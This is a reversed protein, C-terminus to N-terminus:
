VWKLWAPSIYILLILPPVASQPLHSQLQLSKQGTKHDELLLLFISLQLFDDFLQIFLLLSAIRQEVRHDGFGHCVAEPLPDSCQLCALYSVAAHICFGGFILADPASFHAREAISISMKAYCGCCGAATWTGQTRHFHEVHSDSTLCAFMENKNAVITSFSVLPLVHHSKNISTKVFLLFAVFQLPFSKLTSNFYHFVQLHLNTM